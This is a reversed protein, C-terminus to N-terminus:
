QWLTFMKKCIADDTHKNYFFRQVRGIFGTVPVTVPGTISTGTFMFKSISYEAQFLRWFETLASVTAIVAKDTTNAGQCYKSFIQGYQPFM